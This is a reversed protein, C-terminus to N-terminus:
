LQRALGATRPFEPTRDFLRLERDYRFARYTCPTYQPAPSSAFEHLEQWTMSRRYPAANMGPFKGTLRRRAPSLSFEDWKSWSAYDLKDGDWVARRWCFQIEDTCTWLEQAVLPCVKVGADLLNKLHSAFARCQETISQIPRGTLVDAPQNSSDLCVSPFASPTREGFDRLTLGAFQELTPVTAHM